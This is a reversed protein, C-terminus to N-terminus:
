KKGGSVDWRLERLGHSGASHGGHGLGQGDGRGRGLVGVGVEVRVGVGLVDVEHTAGASLDDDVDSSDEM